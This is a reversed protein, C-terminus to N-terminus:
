KENLKENLDDDHLYDAKIRLYISLNMKSVPNNTKFCLIDTMDKSFGWLATSDILPFM